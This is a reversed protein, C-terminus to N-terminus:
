RHDADRTPGGPNPLGPVPGGGATQCRLVAPVGQDAVPGRGIIQDTASRGAAAAAWLMVGLGLITLGAGAWIPSTYRQMSEYLWSPQFMRMCCSARAVASLGLAM